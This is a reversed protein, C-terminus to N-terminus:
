QESSQAKYKLFANMFEDINGDMVAAIDGTEYGTRNDKALTYPM